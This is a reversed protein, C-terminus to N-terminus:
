GEDVYVANPAKVIDNYDNQSVGRITFQSNQGAMSGGVHVNPTFVAVEHSEEIGMARLQNGTFATCAIGVDQLSQERKQATVTVEELVQAVATGSILVSLSLVVVLPRRSFGGGGGTGKTTQKM